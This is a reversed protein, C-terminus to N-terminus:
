NNDNKKGKNVNFLIEKIKETIQKVKHRIYNFDTDPEITDCFDLFEDNLYTSLLKNEKEIADFNQSVFEEIKLCFKILDKRKDIKDLKKLLLDSYKIDKNGKKLSSSTNFELNHKKLFEGFFADLNNREEQTMDKLSKKIEEETPIHDDIRTIKEENDAM